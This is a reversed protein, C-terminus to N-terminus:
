RLTSYHGRDAYLRGQLAGGYYLQANYLAWKADAPVIPGSLVRYTHRPLANFWGYGGYRYVPTTDRTTSDYAYTPVAEGLRVYYPAKNIPKYFFADPAIFADVDGTNAIDWELYQTHSPVLQVNTISLSPIVAPTPPIESLTRSANIRGETLTKGSLSSKIDVNKLIADRIQINTYDPRMTKILGALGSVYPAAMSTGSDFVYNQQASSPDFARIKVNDIYVSNPGVSGDTELRFRIKFYPSNDYNTLGYELERWGTSNGSGYDITDWHMGDRSAEVYLVGHAEVTNMKVLLGLTTGCKSTLDLPNKLTLSANVKSNDPPSIMASSPPSVYETDTIRWPKQANWADFCNFPDYFTQVWPPYTSLINTGPAAVQVSNPGYDSYPAIVDNQDTAAVAVINSSPYSSPYHPVKDNNQGENGAACIFIARSADIADKEAQSYPAGGFSMNIIRAGHSDAYSIASIVVDTPAGNPGIVRLPMIKARWMVGTVGIGNNGAAAIIGAVHTGHGDRDMPDNSHTFFDWGSVINPTLDPENYDIGTDLVAVIVDRSGTTKDWAEPADIDAGPTGALGRVKQGTNQLGWLSSFYPDDPIVDKFRLYDPEAYLVSPNQNYQAVAEPATIGEPLQALQLGPVEKFEKIVTAGVKAHAAAAVNPVVVGDKRVNPKFRVLVKDKVYDTSAVHMRGVSDRQSLLGATTVNGVLLLLTLIV